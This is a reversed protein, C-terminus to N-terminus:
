RRNASRCVAFCAGAVGVVLVLIDIYPLGPVANGSQALSILGSVSTLLLSM